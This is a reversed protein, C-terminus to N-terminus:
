IVKLQKAYLLLDVVSKCNCKSFINKRHTAITHHSVHLREGIDRSSGGKQIEKIIEIERKTFPNESVKSLKSLIFADDMNKSRVSWSVATSINLYSIDTLRTFSKLLNGRTDLEYVSSQSLLHIYSGDKRKRRYTMSLQLDPDRTLSNVASAIVAKIVQSVMVADEHHYGKFTFEFDVEADTYGLLQNFGKKFLLRNTKYDTIYSCEGPLSHFHHPLDGTQDQDKEASLLSTVQEFFSEMELPDLNDILADRHRKLNDKM